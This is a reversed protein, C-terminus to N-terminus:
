FYLRFENQSEHYALHQHDSLHLQLNLVAPYIDNLEFEFIRGYHKKLLYRVHMKSNSTENFQNNDDIRPMNIAVRDHGKCMYKYLYKVATFSALVFKWM